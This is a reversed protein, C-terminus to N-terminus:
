LHSALRDVGDFREITEDGANTRLSAYGNRHFRRIRRRQATVNRADPQRGAVVDDCVQRQTMSARAHQIQFPHLHAVQRGQAIRGHLRQARQELIRRNRLRSVIQLAVEERQAPLADRQGPELEVRAHRRVDEIRPPALVREVGQGQLMEPM